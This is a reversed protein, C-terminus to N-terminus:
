PQRRWQRQLQRRPGQGPRAEWANGRANVSGVPPGTLHFVHLVKPPIVAPSALLRDLIAQVEETSIGALWVLLEAEGSDVEAMSPLSTPPSGTSSGTPGFQASSSAEAM